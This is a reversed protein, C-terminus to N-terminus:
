WNSSSICCCAWRADANSSPVMWRRMTASAWSIPRGPSAAVRRRAPEALALMARRDGLGVAGAEQGGQGRDVADHHEILVGRELHNTAETGVHEDLSRVVRAVVDDAAVLDLCPAAPHHSHRHHLALRGGIEQALEVVRLSRGIWDAIRWGGDAIFSSTAVRLGPFARSIRSRSAPRGNSTM